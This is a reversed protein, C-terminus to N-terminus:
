EKFRNELGDVDKKSLLDIGLNRLELVKLAYNKNDLYKDVNIKAYKVKIGLGYKSSSDINSLAFQYGEEAFKNILDLHSQFYIEDSEIIIQNPSIKNAKLENTIQALLANDLVEKSFHIIYQEDKQYNISRFTREMMPFYFNELKAFLTIMDESIPLHSNDVYAFHIRKINEKSNKDVIDQYSLPIVGEKLSQEIIELYERKRNVYIPDTSLRYLKGRKDATKFLTRSLSDLAFLSNIELPYSLLIIKPTLTVGKDNLSIKDEFAFSLKRAIEACEVYSTNELLYAFEDEEKRYLSGDLSFAKLINIIKEIIEERNTKHKIILDELYDIKFVMVYGRQDNNIHDLLREELVEKDFIPESSDVILIQTNEKGKSVASFSYPITGIKSILKNVDKGNLPCSRCPKSRGFLANYCKKGVLDQQYKDKLNPSIAIIDKSPNITYSYSHNRVLLANIRDEVQENSVKLLTPLCLATLTNLFTDIIMRQENSINLLRNHSALVISLTDNDLKYLDIKKYYEFSEKPTDLFNTQDSWKFHKDEGNITLAINSFPLYPMSKLVFQKENINKNVTAEEVLSYFNAFSHPKDKRSFMLYNVSALGSRRTSLDKFEEFSFDPYYILVFHDEKHAQALEKIEKELAFRNGFNVIFVDSGDSNRNIYLTKFKDFFLTLEEVSLSTSLLALSVVEEYNLNKKVYSYFDDMEYVFKNKIGQKEISLSSLESAIINLEKNDKSTEVIQKEGQRYKEIGKLIKLSDEKRTKNVLLLLIISLAVMLGLSVLAFVLLLLKNSNNVIALIILIVAVVFLLSILSSLLIHKKNKM